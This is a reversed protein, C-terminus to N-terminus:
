TAYRSLLQLKERLKQQQVSSQSEDGNVNLSKEPSASRKRKGLQAPPDNSHDMTSNGNITDM